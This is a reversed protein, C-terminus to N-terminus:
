RRKPKKIVRSGNEKALGYKSLAKRLGQASLGAMKAAKVIDGEAASMLKGFYERRFEEEASKLKMPRGDEVGGGIIAASGGLGCLEPFSEMEIKGTECYVIANKIRNELERVNGKWPHRKMAEIVDASFGSIKRNLDRSNKELFYRALPEIDDIRERLPPISLRVGNIRYYFDQRLKGEKVREELNDNTAMILRVSAKIPPRKPDQGVRSFTKSQLFQLLKSQVSDSLDFIEPLYVTGGNAAELKGIKMRDAGTFAGKEHGFLESEVVSESLSKIPLTVFPKKERTSRNHIERAILDKGFGTEGLILVDNNLSALRTIKYNVEKMAESAFVFKDRPMGFADWLLSAQMEIERYELAKLIKAGLMKVNVDKTIFDYAGNRMAEVAEEVRNVETVILVPLYPDIEEHIRKLVQLGHIDPLMLDLLVATVTESKLIELGKAATSAKLILYKNRLYFEIDSIFSISDDIILIREM